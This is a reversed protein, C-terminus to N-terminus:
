KETEVRKEEFVSENGPERREEIATRILGRYVDLKNSGKQHRRVLARHKELKESNMREWGNAM